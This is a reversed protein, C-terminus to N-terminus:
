KSFLNNICETIENLIIDASAVYQAEESNRCEHTQTKLPDFLGTATNVEVDIKQPLEVSDLSIIQIIPELCVESSCQKLQFELADVKNYLVDVIYKSNTVIESSQVRIGSICSRM